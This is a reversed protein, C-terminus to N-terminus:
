AIMPSTGDHLYARQGKSCFEQGSVQGVGWIVGLKKKERKSVKM